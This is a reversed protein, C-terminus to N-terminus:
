ICLCGFGKTKNLTEELKHEYNSLFCSNDWLQSGGLQEPQQFRYRPGPIELTYKWKQNAPLIKISQKYHHLKNCAIKGRETYHKNMLKISDRCNPNRIKRMLVAGTRDANCTRDGELIQWTSSVSNWNRNDHQCCEPRHKSDDLYSFPTISLYNWIHLKRREELGSLRTM